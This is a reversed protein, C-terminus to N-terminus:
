PLAIGLPLLAAKLADYAPKLSGMTQIAQAITMFTSLLKSNNPKPKKIEIEAEDVLEVIEEKPHAPLRDVSALAKRALSLASLLAERDQM